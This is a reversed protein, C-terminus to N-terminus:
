SALSVRPASTARAISVSMGADTSVVDIRAGLQEALARVVATGLGSNATVRRDTQRGVGNDTVMLRWDSGEVEYTVTVQAGPKDVPFAYKIANILLETVILGISVAEGSEIDGQDAVVKITIPRSDGIMSSALSGCLKELYSGVEIRDIGDTAHLHQQVAAVSMVRQHADQLHNRTEESTVARAKLLLISAIIQLSNAVRHQMEQFLIQKQRLLEETQRLLEEKEHEIARRMTVDTFALLITSESNDDYIVQRANLLMTRHGVNPFDHEVEFGDMETREPIITELLLRLAPIDWQGDGLAYLLSGRTHEADVKFVEYFSRSAVLVRLQGDLVIFPEPITNVIAQALTQAHEISAIPNLM